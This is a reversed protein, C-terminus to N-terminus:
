GASRRKGASNREVIRCLGRRDGERGRERGAGIAELESVRALDVGLGVAQEREVILGLFARVAARQVGLELRRVGAPEHRAPILRVVLRCPVESRSHRFVQHGDAVQRRDGALRDAASELFHAKLGSRRHRGVQQEERGAVEAPDGLRRAPTLDPDDHRASILWLCLQRQVGLGLDQREVVIIEAGPVREWLEVVDGTRTLRLEEARHLIPAGDERELPDEEVIGRYGGLVLALLDESDLRMFHRVLPEAVQDGHAPPVIQPQVFAEGAPHRVLGGLVEMGVPAGVDVVDRRAFRRHVEVAERGGVRDDLLHPCDLLRVLREVGDGVLLPFRHERHELAERPRIRPSRSDAVIDGTM